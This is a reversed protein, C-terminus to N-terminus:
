SGKKSREKRSLDVVEEEMKYCSEENENAQNKLLEEIRKAEELQIMM